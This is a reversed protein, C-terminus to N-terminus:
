RGLQAIARQELGVAVFDAREAEHVLRIDVAIERVLHRRRELVDVAAGTAVAPSNPVVM